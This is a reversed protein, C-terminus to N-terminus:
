ESNGPDSSDSGKSAQDTPFGDGFLRLLMQERVRNATREYRFYRRQRDAFAAAHVTWATRYAVDWLLLPEPEALPLSLRRDGSVGARFARLELEGAVVQRVGAVLKRVMGWVFSPARVELILGPGDELVEFRSVTRFSPRDAPMGRGFSRADVDGVVTNAAKQYEARSGRPDAEFYRYTRSLAARPRFDDGVVQADTFVIEPAIGNLARLLPAGPLSTRFALANGRASVGRDTRSAVDIRLDNGGPVIGRREMGGLIEGEVTRLGPQRAWGYFPRGDYGFRVLWRTPAM